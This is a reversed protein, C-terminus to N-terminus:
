MKDVLLAFYAEWIRELEILNFQTQPNMEKEKKHKWLYKYTLLRPVNCEGSNLALVVVREEHSLNSFQSGYYPDHFGVGEQM